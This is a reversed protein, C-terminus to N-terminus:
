LSWISASVARGIGGGCPCSSSTSTVSCTAATCASRSAPLPSWFIPAEWTVLVSLQAPPHPHYSLFHRLISLADLFVSVSSNLKSSSFYKTGNRVQRHTVNWLRRRGRRGCFVHRLSNRIAGRYLTARRRKTMAKKMTTKMKQTPTFWTFSITKTMAAMSSISAIRCTSVVVVCCMTLQFCLVMYLDIIKLILFLFLVHDSLGM